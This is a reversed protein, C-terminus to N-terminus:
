RALAQWNEPKSASSVADSAFYTYFGDFGGSLIADGDKLDLM